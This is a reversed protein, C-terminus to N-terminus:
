SKVSKWQTQFLTYLSNKRGEQHRQELMQLSQLEKVNINKIIAWTTFNPIFGYIYMLHKM